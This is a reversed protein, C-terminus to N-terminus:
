HPLSAPSPPAAEQRRSRSSTVALISTSPCGAAGWPGPVQVAEHQVSIIPRHSWSTTTTSSHWLSSWGPHPATQTHVALLLTTTEQESM